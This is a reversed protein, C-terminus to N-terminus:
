RKAELKEPEKQESTMQEQNGSKVSTTAATKETKPAANEAEAIVKQRIVMSATGDNLKKMFNWAEIRSMKSCDINNVMLIEDGVRLVATKDAAGGSFIKKITLPRDGSPSDKGGELSFGLGTGEKKLVVTKPPGRPVDVFKLDSLLSKSDLPSELIKPPRGSNLYNPYSYDSRDYAGEAPTVSRSRSIVLVVEARPAKLISLAERHTVGKTSKGNISLVRDGKQIRGDRDALTGPIVKHVTIDKCEYDAGGALTIGISGATFERHLVVVMIEHSPTGSEELSQNAEDILGQLEQQSILSTSSALSSISGYHDRMNNTQGSFLSSVSGYCHQPTPISSEDSNTSDLSSMRNHCPSMEPLGKAAAQLSQEAKEFARRIDNVSVCRRNSGAASGNHSETQGGMESM